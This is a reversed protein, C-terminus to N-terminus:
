KLSASTLDFSLTAVFTSGCWKSTGSAQSPPFTVVNGAPDSDDIWCNSKNLTTDYWRLDLTFVKYAYSVGANWTNYSVYRTPGFTASSTGLDEHGFEGSVSFNSPLNIKATGSLYWEKAGVDTWNPSYYFNGGVTFTDNITWSPKAYVEFYSPDKATTAPCLAKGGSFGVPCFGHSGTQNPFTYGNGNIFYQKTNNPYEYYIGGVDVTVPGFTERIGGDLDVEATPDTPLKVSWIHTGAYLQTNGINYRLEGYASAGAGNDSQSIGRSMYNSTLDGGFAYDFGDASVPAPPPPAQTVLDAAYAGTTLISAALVAALGYSKM